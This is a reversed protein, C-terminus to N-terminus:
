VSFVPRLAPSGAIKPFLGGALPPIGIAAHTIAASITTKTTTPITIALRPLPLAVGSAAAQIFGRRTQM